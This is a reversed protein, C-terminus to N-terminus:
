KNEEKTVEVAVNSAGDKNTVVSVKAASIAQVLGKGIQATGDWFGSAALAGLISVLVYDQWIFPTISWMVLYALVFSIILSAIRSNWAPIDTKYFSKYYNVAPMIFVGLAIALPILKMSVLIDM